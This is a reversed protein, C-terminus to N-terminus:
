SLAAIGLTRFMRANLWRAKEYASMSSYGKQKSKVPALVLAWAVVLVAFTM